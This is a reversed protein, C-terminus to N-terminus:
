GLENENCNRQEMIVKYSQNFCPWDSFNWEFKAILYIKALGRIPNFIVELFGKELSPEKKKYYKEKANKNNLNKKKSVVRM